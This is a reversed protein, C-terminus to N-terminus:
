LFTGNSYKYEENLVLRFLSTKIVFNLKMIMVGTHQTKIYVYIKSYMKIFLNNILVNILNEIIKHIFLM